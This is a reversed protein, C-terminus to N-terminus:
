WKNFKEYLIETYGFENLFSAPKVAHGDDSGSVRYVLSGLVRMRDRGGAPASM